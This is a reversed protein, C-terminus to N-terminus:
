SDRGAGTTRAKRTEEGCDACRTVDVLVGSRLEANTTSSGHPPCRPSAADDVRQPLASAVSTDPSTDSSRKRPRRRPPHVDKGLAPADDHPVAALPVMRQVAQWEPGAVRDLLQAPDPTWPNSLLPFAEDEARRVIDSLRVGLCMCVLFVVPLSPLRRGLELRCLVSMSLGCDDALDKLMREQNQRARRMLMGVSLCMSEVTRSHKPYLM